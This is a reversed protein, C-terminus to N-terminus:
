HSPYFRKVIQQTSLSVYKWSYNKCNDLTKESRFCEISMQHPAWMNHIRSFCEGSYTVDVSAYVCAFAISPIWMSYTHNYKKRAAREWLLTTTAPNWSTCAHRRGRFRADSGGWSALNLSLKVWSDVPIWIRVRLGVKAVWTWDLFGFISVQKAVIVHISFRGLKWCSEVSSFSVKSSIISSFYPPFSAFHRRNTHLFRVVITEVKFVVPPCALLPPLLTWYHVQWCLNSFSKM